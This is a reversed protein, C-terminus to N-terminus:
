KGLIERNSLPRSRPRPRPLNKVPPPFRSRWLTKTALAEVAHFVGMPVPFDPYEMQALLTALLADDRKEDHVLIDDLTVDGLTAVRPTLGDLVIGKDKEKGFLLPQGQELRLTREDRVTRNVVPDHTKDNFINCNQLVEVFSTGKHQAARLLSRAYTSMPIWRAPSFPEGPGWPSKRRNLPGIWRVLPLPNPWKGWNPPPLTNGRLSATSATTSSSSISTWTAASPTSRITGGLPFVM